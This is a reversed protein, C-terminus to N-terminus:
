SSFLPSVTALLTILGYDSHAGAGLVGKGPDSVQRCRFVARHALAREITSGCSADLSVRAPVGAISVEASGFLLSPDLSAFDHM